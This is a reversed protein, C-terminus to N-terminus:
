EYDGVLNNYRIIFGDSGDEGTEEMGIGGSGGSVSLEGDNVFQDYVLCILGGGAGGGGYKENEEGNGGRCSIVGKNVIRRAFILVSGAGHGGGAGSKSVGGGSGFQRHKIEGNSLYYMEPPVVFSPNFKVLGGNNIMGGGSGGAGGFGECCDAQNQSDAGLGSFKLPIRTEADHGDNHIVANDKILLIGNVHIKFDDTRLTVGDEITLNTCFLDSDLVMDYSITKFGDIGFGYYINATNFIGNKGREGQPGAPGEQGTPGIPGPEGDAGKQGVHVVQTLNSTSVGRDGKRGRKVKKKVESIKSELKSELDEILSKNHRIKHLLEALSRDDAM